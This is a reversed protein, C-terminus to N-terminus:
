RSTVEIMSDNKTDVPTTASASIPSLVWNSAKKNAARKLRGKGMMAPMKKAVMTLWPKAPANPAQIVVVRPGWVMRQIKPTENKPMAM